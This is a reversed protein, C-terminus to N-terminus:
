AIAFCVDTILDKANTTAPDNRYFELPFYKKKPKYEKNRQMMIQASWANGLHDYKGTHGVVHFTAKPLKGIFFPKEPLTAGEKIPIGAIYAVASSVMDFKTYQSFPVGCVETKNNKTFEELAKFDQEMAPGMQDFTTETKIGIYSCGEFDMTNGFSLKSPVEGLEVYDKLMKLGRDYDMGIFAEMKKKMWFMFLPLSSDMTWETRTGEKTESLIFAVKATSKWPKLFTLDYDIRTDTEKIVTMEGSGVRKGEWSYQKGDKEVKIEAEPECILWPSWPQWSGLHCVTEKVKKLPADIIISRSVYTKPM